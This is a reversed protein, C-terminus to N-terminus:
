RRARRAHPPGATGDVRAGAEAVRPHQACAACQAAHTRVREADAPSLEGALLADLEQERCALSM